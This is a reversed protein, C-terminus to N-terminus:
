KFYFGLDKDHGVARCSRAGSGETFESEVTQRARGTGVVSIKSNRSSELRTGEKPSKYKSIGENPHQQGLGQM